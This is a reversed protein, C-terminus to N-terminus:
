QNQLREIARLLAEPNSYDHPANDPDLIDLHSAVKVFNGLVYYSQAVMLRLRFANVAPRHDFEYDPTDRLLPELVSTCSSYKNMANFVVGFGATIDNKIKRSTDLRNAGDFDNRANQLDALYVRSWGRGSLAEARLTDYKGNELVVADTFKTVATEFDGSEFANWGEAILEQVQAKVDIPPLPNDDDPNTSSKGCGLWIISTVILLILMWRKM